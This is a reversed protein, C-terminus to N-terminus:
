VGHPLRAVADRVGGAACVRGGPGGPGARGAGPGPHEILLWARSAEPASAASSETGDHCEAGHECVAAV